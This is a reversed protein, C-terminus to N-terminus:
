TITVNVRATPIHKNYWTVAPATLLDQPVLRTGHLALQRLEYWMKAMYAYQVAYCAPQINADVYGCTHSQAASRPIKAHDLTLHKITMTRHRNIASDCPVRLPWHLPDAPHEKIWQERHVVHARRALNHHAQATRMPCLRHGKMNLGPNQRM